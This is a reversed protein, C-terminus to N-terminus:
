VPVIILNRCYNNLDYNPETWKLKYNKQEENNNVWYKLENNFLQCRIIGDNFVNHISFGPHYVKKWHSSDNHYQRIYLQSGSLEIVETCLNNEDYVPCQINEKILKLDYSIPQSSLDNILLTFNEFNFNNLDLHSPNM